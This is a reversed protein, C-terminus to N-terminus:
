RALMLIVQTVLAKIVFEINGLEIKRENAHYADWNHAFLECM